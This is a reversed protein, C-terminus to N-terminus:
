VYRVTPHSVTKGYIQKAKEVGFSFKNYVYVNMEDDDDLLFCMYMLGMQSANPPNKQIIFPSLDVNAFQLWWMMMTTMLWGTCESKLRFKQSMQKGHLSQMRLLTLLDATLRHIAPLINSEERARRTILKTHRIKGNTEMWNSAALRFCLM